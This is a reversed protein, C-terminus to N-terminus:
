IKRRKSPAWGNIQLDRRKSLEQRSLSRAPLEKELHDYLLAKVVQYSLDAFRMGRTDVGTVNDRSTGINIKM